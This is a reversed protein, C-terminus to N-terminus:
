NRAAPEGPAASDGATALGQVVAWLSGVTAFTEADVLDDPFDIHFANELDGILQVITLSDLGLDMLPDDPGLSESGTFPLRGCLVDHYRHLPDMSEM